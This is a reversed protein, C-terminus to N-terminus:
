GRLRAKNHKPRVPEPDLNLLCSGKAISLRPDKYALLNAPHIDNALFNGIIHTAYAEHVGVDKFVAALASPIDSSYSDLSGTKLEALTGYVMNNHVIGWAGPKIFVAV